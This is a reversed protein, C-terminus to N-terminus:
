VLYIQKQLRFASKQTSRNFAFRYFWTCGVLSSLIFYRRKKMWTKVSKPNWSSAVSTTFNQIDDLREFDVKSLPYKLKAERILEMKQKEFAEQTYADGFKIDKLLKIRIIKNKDWPLTEPDLSTDLWRAFVFYKSKVYDVVRANYYENMTMPIGDANIFVTQKMRQENHWCVVKMTISPSTGILQKLYALISFEQALNCIYSFEYSFFAELYILLLSFPMSVYCFINLARIASNTDSNGLTNALILYLIMAVLGVHFYASYIRLLSLEKKFESKIEAPSMHARGNEANKTTIPESTMKENRVEYKTRININKDYACQICCYKFCYHIIPVLYYSPVIISLCVIKTTDSNGNGM